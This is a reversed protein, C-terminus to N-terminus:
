HGIEQLHFARRDDDDIGFAFKGGHGRGIPALQPADDNEVRKANERIPAAILIQFAVPKIRQRSELRVRGQEIGFRRFDRRSEDRHAVTLVLMKVRRRPSEDGRQDHECDNFGAFAFGDGVLRERPVIARTRSNSQM